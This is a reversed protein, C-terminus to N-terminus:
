VELENSHLESRGLLDPAPREALDHLGLGDVIARELRLAVTQEAFANEAGHLVPFAVASLELTDTKAPVDAVPTADLHREGLHSALAHPVDLERHGHRMDPEELRKRTLETIQEAHRQAVELLDDVVRCIHDRMGALLFHLELVQEVLVLVIIQAHLRAILVVLFELGLDARLCRTRQQLHEIGRVLLDLTPVRVASAEVPEGFPEAILDHM